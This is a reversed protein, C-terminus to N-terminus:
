IHILSLYYLVYATLVTLGFLTGFVIGTRRQNTWRHRRTIRWGAVVHGGAIAGLGLLAGFSALGHLRMLWPEARSPLEDAGRTQHLILWAVGTMLLM